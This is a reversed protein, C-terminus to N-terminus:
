RVAALCEEGCPVFRSTYGSLERRTELLRHAADDIQEITIRGDAVAATIAAVVADVDVPRVFLLLTTGAAVARVANASQDAFEPDGSGVLMGLDDSVIIGDFGLEDRLIAHWVPSLSAPQPDVADYRLHGMMVLEAGAEIGADFPPAQTSRWQDISMATVPITSHSDGPAAGHGPFHKLTTLASGREGAVAEAVRESVELANGGFSREYLFSSEDGVVDAVVGFNVTAGLEHLRGARSAFASRADAPPLFRLEDAGPWVDSPLRSVYGGEQDIGILAPLGPEVSIASTMAGLAGDPSPVNDGMLIVGALGQAAVWAGMTPGDVGPMRVMIMSRIKQELAMTELRDDAYQEIPDIPAPVPRPASASAPASASPSPQPAATCGALLTAVMVAGVLLDRSQKRGRVHM